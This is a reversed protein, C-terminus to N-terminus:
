NTLYRVLSVAGCYFGNAVENMGKPQSELHGQNKGLIAGLLTLTVIGQQRGAIRTQLVLDRNALKSRGVM